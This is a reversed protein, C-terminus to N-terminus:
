MIYWEVCVCFLSCYVYFLIDGRCSFSESVLIYLDRWDLTANNKDKMRAETDIEVGTM